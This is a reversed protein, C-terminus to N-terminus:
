VDKSLIPNTNQIAFKAIALQFAYIDTLLTIRSLLYLLRIITSDKFSFDLGGAISPLIPYTPFPSSIM